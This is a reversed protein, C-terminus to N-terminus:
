RSAQPNHPARADDGDRAGRAGWAHRADWARRFLHAHRADDGDGSRVCRCRLSCRLRLTIRVGTGTHKMSNWLVPFSYIRPDAKTGAWTKKGWGWATYYHRRFREERAKVCPTNQGGPHSARTRRSSEVTRNQTFNNTDPLRSKITTQIILGVKNEPCSVNRFVAESCHRMRHKLSFLCTPVHTWGAKIITITTKATEAKHTSTLLPPTRNLSSAAHPWM